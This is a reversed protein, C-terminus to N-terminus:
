VIRNNLDTNGAWLKELNSLLIDIVNDEYKRTEGASHPTIVLNDLAWFPSNAPLPEEKFHDIGAGAIVSNSLANYLASEEVCGGRAVNILYASPKMLVITKSDILDTTAETLPCCLVVFDARPLLNPLAEPTHVEDCSGDHTTTDRKTGITHMGFARALRAVRTGIAGLGVVLMTHGVLDDERQNIDSIMARWHQQHQHDRASPLHRILALTLSIAHQSVADANVGSANCLLVDHHRLADLDYQDYGASISQVYRLRPAESLLANRWFGSVVLVDTENIKKRTAEVTSTQFHQIDLERAAFRNAMQYASHSFHITTNQRTPFHTQTM